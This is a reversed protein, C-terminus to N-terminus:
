EGIMNHMQDKLQREARSFERMVNAALRTFHSTPYIRGDESKRAWGKKELVNVARVIQVSSANVAAALDINRIGKIPHNSLVDLTNLVLMAGKNTNEEHEM